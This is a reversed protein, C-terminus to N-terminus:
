PIFKATNYHMLVEEDTLPTNYLAFEDLVGNFFTIGGNSGISIATATNVFVADPDTSPVTVNVGDVFIEATAAGAKKRVVVHYITGAVISGDATQVVTDGGGVALEIRGATRVRIFPAGVGKAFIVGDAALSDVRMNFSFTFSDGVNLTPDHVVSIYGTAGDFDYAGEGNDVNAHLLGPAAFFAIGGNLVGDNGFDSADVYGNTGMPWVAVPSRGLIERRYNLLDAAPKETITFSIGAPTIRALERELGVLDPDVDDRIWVEYSFNGVDEYVRYLDDYAGTADSYLAAGGADLPIGGSGFALSTGFTASIFAEIIEDRRGRTFAGKKKRALLDARRQEVSKNVNGAPLGAEAEHLQLDDVSTEVFQEANLATMEDAAEQMPITIIRRVQGFNSDQNEPWLGPPSEEIFLQEIESFQGEPPLPPQTIESM